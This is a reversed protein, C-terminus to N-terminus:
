ETEIALLWKTPVVTNTVADYYPNSDPFNIMIVNSKPNFSLSGLRFPLIRGLSVFKYLVPKM